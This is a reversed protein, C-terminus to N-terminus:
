VNILIKYITNDNPIKCHLISANAHTPLDYAIYGLEGDVKCEIFKDNLYRTTPYVLIEQVENTIPDKAHIVRRPAEIVFELTDTEGTVKDEIDCYYRSNCPPDVEITWTNGYEHSEDYWRYTYNTKVDDLVAGLTYTFAGTKEFWCNTRVISTTCTSGSNDSVTLTYETTKTPYVKVTETTEGSDWNYEVTELDPDYSESGDLIIFDGKFVAIHNAKIVATPNQNLGYYFTALADNAFYLGLESNMDGYDLIQTGEYVTEKSRKNYVNAYCNWKEIEPNYIVSIEIKLFQDQTNDINLNIIKENLIINYTNFEFKKINDVSIGVIVSNCNKPVHVDTQFIIGGNTTLTKANAYTHSGKYDENTVIVTGTPVWTDSLAENQELVVEGDSNELNGTAYNFRTVLIDLVRVLIDNYAIQGGETEVKLRYRTDESPSVIVSKENSIIM